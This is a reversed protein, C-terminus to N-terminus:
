VRVARSMLRALGRRVHPGATDTQLSSRLVQRLRYSCISSLVVGFPKVESSWPSSDRRWHTSGANGFGASLLSILRLRAPELSVRTVGSPTPRVLPPPCAFAVELDAHRRGPSSLQWPHPAQLATPRARSGRPPRRWRPGPSRVAGATYRLPGAPPRRPGPRVRGEPSSEETARFRRQSLTGGHEPFRSQWLM